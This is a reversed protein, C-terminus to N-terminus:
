IKLSLGGDIKVTEGTIASAKESALFLVLDAVEEPEIARGLPMNENLWKKKEPNNEHGKETRVVSPAVANVRIKPALQLAVSKTFNVLGGKSAAYGFADYAPLELGWVSAVNIISSKEPMISHLIYTCLAPGKLNVSMVADWNKWNPKAPHEKLIVGANNVLVDLKGFQKKIEEKLKNVDAEKSVDAQIFVATSGTKQIEDVVKRAEEVSTSCNVIVTAKEKAFALAIAKGIGKSSGTVLVVKNEFTM